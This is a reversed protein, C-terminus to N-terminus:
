TTISKIQKQKAGKVILWLAFGLEGVTMPISLAMELNAALSELSPFQKLTCVLSYSIGAIILLIGWFRLKSKLALYGLGILHFGFAILGLTWIYEFNQFHDMVVQATTENTEKLLSLIHMLQGIAMGLIISYIIRVWATLASISKNVNKFFHYLAWAVIVDLILILCWGLIEAQFLGKANLLNQLTTNADDPQVIQSHAYGFSFGATIAMLLLSVGAIIAFKNLSKNTTNM